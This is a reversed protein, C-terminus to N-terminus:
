IHETFTSNLKSTNPDRAMSQLFKIVKTLNCDKFDLDNEDFLTPTKNHLAINDNERTEGMVVKTAEQIPSSTHELTSTHVLGNTLRSPSPTHHTDFTKLDEVVNITALTTSIPYHKARQKEEEERALRAKLKALM